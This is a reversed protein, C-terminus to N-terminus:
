VATETLFLHPKTSFHHEVSQFPSRLSHINFNIYFFTSPPTLVNQTGLSRSVKRTGEEFPSESARTFAREVRQGYGPNSDMRKLIGRGWITCPEVTGRCCAQSRISKYAHNRYPHKHIHILSKTRIPQQKM